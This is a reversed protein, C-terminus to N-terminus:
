RTWIPVARGIVASADLPGFYRGDFSDRAEANLLFIQDAGLRICGNWHPLPRGRDDASRRRVRPGGAVAVHSRSACIRDGAVGAVRKIAPVNAPLYHRRAALDRAAQPLRVLALDGRAPREGPAIRYLGVPASASANWVLRPAPPAALTAGLAVALVALPLAARTARRLRAAAIARRQRQEDLWAFLPLPRPEAM